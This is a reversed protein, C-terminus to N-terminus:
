SKIFKEGCQQCYRADEDNETNGCRDCAKKFGRIKQHRLEATVIGTPVAIISYGALMVLISIFKGLGTVPSVDGYGVTTCTVTAWYISQPISKFGENHENEVVFMVCGVIIIFISLFLIFIYIKRSSHRLASVIYKGDDMYDALNLIRFIRLIRFMRILVLYHFSHFVLGLYFPFISIFDLIGLPSFIYDRKDKISAIRLAYEVTFLFTIVFEGYYFLRQYKVNITPVTELMVLATSLFIAILLGIDFLKGTKTDSQYIIRYIRKLLPNRVPRYNFERKLIRYHYNKEM